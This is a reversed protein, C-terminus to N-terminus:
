FPEIRCGEGCRRRAVEAIGPGAEKRPGTQDAEIHRKVLVESDVFLVRDLEPTFQEIGEVMRVESRDGCVIPRAGEALHRGRSIRSNDLKYQTVFELEAEPLGPAFLPM